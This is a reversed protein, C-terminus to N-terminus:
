AKFTLNTMMEGPWFAHFRQLLFGCVLFVFHSSADNRNQSLSM